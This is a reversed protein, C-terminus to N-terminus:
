PRRLVRHHLRSRTVARSLRPPEASPALVMSLQEQMGAYAPAEAPHFTGLPNLLLHRVKGERIVMWQLPRYSLGRRVPFSLSLHADGIRVVFSSGAVTHPVMPEADPPIRREQVAGDDTACRISAPEAGLEAVIGFPVVARCDSGVTPYVVHVDVLLATSGDAFAHDVVLRGDALAFIARLGREGDADFSAASQTVFSRTSAGSVVYSRLRRLPFLPAGARTLGCLAGADLRADFGEGALTVAGPMVSSHMRPPVELEGEPATSAGLEMERHALAGLLTRGDTNRASRRLPEAELWRHRAGPTCPLAGGSIEALEGPTAPRAAPPSGSWDYVRLTNRRGLRTLAERTAVPRRDPGGFLLLCPGSASRGTAARLDAAVDDSPRIAPILRLGSEKETYAPALPRARQALFIATDYGADRISGLIGPRGFDPHFPFLAAPEHAFARATGSAWPNRVAWKVDREVDRRGLLPHFAGRFGVAVIRDLGRDLREALVSVLDAYSPAPAEEFLMPPLFWHVPVESTGLVEELARLFSFEARNAGPPASVVLFGISIHLESRGIM